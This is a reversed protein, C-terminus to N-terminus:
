LLEGEEDIQSFVILSPLFALCYTHLLLSHFWYSKFGKAEFGKEKTLYLTLNKEGKM